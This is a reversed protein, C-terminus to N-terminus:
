CDPLGWQNMSITYVGRGHISSTINDGLNCLHNRTYGDFSQGISVLGLVPHSMKATPLLKEAHKKCLESPPFSLSPLSCFRIAEGQPTIFHGVPKRDREMRQLMRVAQFFQVRFPEEELLKRMNRFDAQDKPQEEQEALTTGTERSKTAM